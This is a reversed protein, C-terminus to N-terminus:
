QQKRRDCGTVHRAAAREWPRVLAPLTGTPLTLLSPSPSLSLDFPGLPWLAAPYLHGFRSITLFCCHFVVRLPQAGRRGEKRRTAEITIRRPSELVLKSQGSDGRAEESSPLPLFLWVSGWACVGLYYLEGGRYAWRVGALADSTM